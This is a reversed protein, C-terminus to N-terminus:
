DSDAAAAGAAAAGAAAAGGGIRRRPSSGASGPTTPLSRRPSKRRPSGDGPMGIPTPGRYVLMEGAVAVEPPVLVMTHIVYYMSKPDLEIYKPNVSEDPRKPFSGSENLLKSFVGTTMRGSARDQASRVPTTISTGKTKSNEIQSLGWTGYQDMTLVYGTRWRNTTDVMADDGGELKGLEIYAAAESKEYSDHATGRTMKPPVIDSVPPAGGDFLIGNDAPVQAESFRRKYENATGADHPPVYVRPEGYVADLRKKTAKKWSGGALAPGYSCEDKVGSDYWMYLSRINIQGRGTEWVVKEADTQKPDFLRCSFRVDLREFKSKPDDVGRKTTKYMTNVHQILMRGSLLRREKKNRLEHLEVLGPIVFTFTAGKLDKAVLPCIPRAKESFIYPFPAFHHSKKLDSPFRGYGDSLVYWVGGSSVDAQGDPGPASTPIGPRAFGTLMIRTLINPIRYVRFLADMPFKLVKNKEVMPFVYPYPTAEPICSRVGVDSIVEKLVAAGPLVMRTKIISDAAGPAWLRMNHNVADQADWWLEGGPVAVVVLDPAGRTGKKVTQVLSAPPARSPSM